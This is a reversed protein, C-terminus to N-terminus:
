KLIVDCIKDVDELSIFGCHYKYLIPVLNNKYWSQGYISFLEQLTM